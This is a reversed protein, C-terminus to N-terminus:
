QRVLASTRRVLLAGLVVTLGVLWLASVGASVPRSTNPDGYAWHIVDDLVHPMSALSLTDALGGSFSDEAIGGIASGIFIVALAAISAYARRTTFSAVLLSLTTYFGAVLVAVLLSRPLVDWNDGLWSRFDRADLANWFFLVAVPM